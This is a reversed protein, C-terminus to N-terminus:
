FSCRSRLHPTSFRKLSYWRFSAEIKVTHVTDAYQDILTGICFVGAPSEVGDIIQWAKLEDSIPDLEPSHKFEGSLGSKIITSSNFTIKPPNVAQLETVKAGDRLVDIRYGYSHM